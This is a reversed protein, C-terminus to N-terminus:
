LVGAAKDQGVIPEVIKSAPLSTALNGAAFAYQQVLTGATAALLMASFMPALLRMTEVLGRAKDLENRIALIALEDAAVHDAGIDGLQQRLQGQRLAEVEGSLFDAAVNVGVRGERLGHLFSGLTNAAM